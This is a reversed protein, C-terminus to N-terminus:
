AKTFQVMQSIEHSNPLHTSDTIAASHFAYCDTLEILRELNAARIGGGAIIQLKHGVAKQWVAIKEAGEMATKQGGSTLVHTVGSEALIAMAEDPNACEDVARHFTFHMGESAALLTSLAMTDITNNQTLVGSVIGAVGMTKFTAISHLLANMETATYVFNGGRPRIMVHIPLNVQQAVAHVMEVPPTIGGLAYDTCLEIRQAGHKAAILAAEANFCAIELLRKM